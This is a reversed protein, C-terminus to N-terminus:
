LKRTIQKKAEPKKKELENESDSLNKRKEIRQREIKERKKEKDTRAKTQNNQSRGNGQAVSAGSNADSGKNKIQQEEKDINEPDSESITGLIETLDEMLENFETQNPKKKGKQKEKIKETESQPKDFKVELAQTIIVEHDISENSSKSENLNEEIPTSDSTSTQAAEMTEKDQYIEVEIEGSSVITNEQSDQSEQSDQTSLSENSYARTRTPHTRASSWVKRPPEPCDLSIHGYTQCNFCKKGHPQGEYRTSIQQGKIYIKKPIDEKISNAVVTVVGSSIDPFDKYTNYKIEGIDVYKQMKNRIYEPKLEYPIGFLTIDITRKKNEWQLPEAQEVNFTVEKVEFQDRFVNQFIEKSHEDRFSASFKNIGTSQFYGILASIDLSIESNIYHLMEASTIKPTENQSQITLTCPRPIMKGIKIGEEGDSAARSYIVNM